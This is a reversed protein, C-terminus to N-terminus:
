RTLLPGHTRRRKRVRRWIRLTIAVLLATAGVGMVIWLIFGVRSSRISVQTPEGLPTGETSVPQLTVLHVGIDTARADIRMAGRGNPPLEIPEPTSLQLDGGPVTARLGVVVRQDLGNVVTVQFTGTESSMTVFAPGRVVIADLWGQVRLRAAVARETAVGPRPRSWLSSALLAQRIVQEEVDSDEVLLEEVKAGEATLAETALVTAVPLEAAFAEEPYIVEEETLGAPLEVPSDTLVRTVEVASLWPLDLGEFFRAEKWRPGPDWGPPLFRVLPADRDGSLAHLAAEALLRQRVALASRPKGPPPGWMDGAGPALLVRGGDPRSLLPGSLGEVADPSLVVPLGPELAALAEPSLYGSMPLLVPSADELREELVTTSSAFASVLLDAVGHREAASVDLDGYPLSLVSTGAAEDFFKEMWGSAAAEPTRAGGDGEGPDEEPDEEPDGAPPALELPPNGRAVSRAADVLAPDVVWGMPQDAPATGALDLLRRLRGGKALTGQWGELYELTGDPARVVHNRFQVGLALTTGDNRAPVLPLFTRARGDAGELRGVSSSGLVHVGAWYVGPAGSIVLQDVPVSLEFTAQEGPALDPVETFTGPEVIRDGVDSRPDSAVGAAIEAATTMPEYSTFLYASLETWEEDSRNRVTGTVRVQGDAPLASPTLRELVVALPDAPLEPPQEVDTTPSETPAPTTPTPDTPTAASPTGSVM